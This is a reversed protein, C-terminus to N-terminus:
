ALLLAGAVLVPAVVLTRLLFTLLLDLVTVPLPSRLMLMGYESFYILQSVSLGALVFRAVQSELGQAVLAPMFQDLAGVIFGKGAAEAEPFGVIGLGLAVPRALVDFVPTHFVLVSATTAIAMIPALLGLLLDV